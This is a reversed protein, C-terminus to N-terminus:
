LTSLIVWIRTLAISTKEKQFIKEAPKKERETKKLDPKSKKIPNM